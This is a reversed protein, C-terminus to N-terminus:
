DELCLEKLEEATIGTFDLVDNGKSNSSLEDVDKHTTDLTVGDTASETSLTSGDNQVLSTLIEGKLSPPRGGIQAKSDPKRNKWLGGYRYLAHETEGDVVGGSALKWCKGCLMVWKEDSRAHQCRILLDVLRGCQSCPKSGRSTGSKASDTPPASEGARKIRQESKASKKQAKRQERSLKPKKNRKETNSEKGAVNPIQGVNYNSSSADEKEQSGDFRECDM